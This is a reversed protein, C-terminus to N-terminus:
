KVKQINMTHAEDALQSKISLLYSGTGLNEIMSDLATNLGGASGEYNGVVRGNIDTLTVAVDEDMWEAPLDARLENNFPNPYVFSEGVDHAEAVDNRCDHPTKYNVPNAWDHYRHKMDHLACSNFQPFITYLLPGFETMKSLSPIPQNAIPGPLNPIQYYDMMNNYFLGSQDLEVGVYSQTGWSTNWVVMVSGGGPAPSCALFPNVNQVGNIPIIPPISGDNVIATTFVGGNNLRVDINMGDDTFTYAWDDTGHDWGDINATPVSGPIIANADAFNFPQLGGGGMQLLWYDWFEVNLNSTMPDLYVVNVNLLGGHTFAIDPAQMGNTGQIVWAPGPTVPGGVWTAVNIDTTEWTVACAYTIHCDMSIRTYNPWVSLAQTGVYAVTFLTPDFDYFDVMHGAGAQHYAVLIQSPVGSGSHDLMGVELDRTGAPYPITMQNVIALSSNNIIQVAVTGGWTGDWGSLYIDGFNYASTHLIDQIGGTYTQEVATPPNFVQAKVTLISTFLLGCFTMLIARGLLAYNTSKM